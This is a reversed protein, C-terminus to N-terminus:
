IRISAWLGVYAQEDTLLFHRAMSHSVRSLAPCEELTPLFSGRRKRSSALSVFGLNKCRRRGLRTIVAIARGIQRMRRPM